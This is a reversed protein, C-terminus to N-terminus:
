LKGIEMIGESDITATKNWYNQGNLKVFEIFFLVILLQIKM